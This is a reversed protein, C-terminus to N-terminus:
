GPCTGAALCADLYAQFRNAYVEFFSDNTLRAFWRLQSIHIVHYHRRALTGRVTGTLKKLNYTSWSGTDYYPLLKRLAAIGRDAKYLDSKAIPDGLYTWAEHLGVMAFMWGNLTHLSYPPMYEEYILYRKSGVAQWMSVGGQAWTREFPARAKAVATTFRREPRLNNARILASMAQGQAMASVWPVPQGGFPFRYLWRGAPDQNALLWEVQVFLAATDLRKQRETLRGYKVANYYGIAAQSITVPNYQNGLTGGYSALVVGAADKPLTRDPGLDRSGMYPAVPGRATVVAQRGDATLWSLSALSTSAIVSAGLALLMRTRISRKSM